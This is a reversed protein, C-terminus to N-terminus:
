ECMGRRGSYVLLSSAGKVRAGAWGHIQGACLLLISDVSKHNTCLVDLM